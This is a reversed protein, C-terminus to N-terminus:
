HHLIWNVDRVLSLLGYISLALLVGGVVMGILRETWRKRPLEGPRRSQRERERQAEHYWDRDYIGM